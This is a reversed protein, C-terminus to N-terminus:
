LIPNNNKIYFDLTNRRQLEVKKFHRDLLYGASVWIASVSPLSVFVGLQGNTIVEPHTAYLSGYMVADYLLSALGLRVAYKNEKVFRKVGEFM